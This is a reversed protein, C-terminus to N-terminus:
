PNTSRLRYDPVFLAVIVTSELHTACAVSEGNRESNALVAVPLLRGEHDLRQDQNDHNKTLFRTMNKRLATMDM